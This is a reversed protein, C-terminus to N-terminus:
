SRQGCVWVGVCRVLINDPKIDAHVIRLSAIHKLAIMMQKSYARVSKINIGCPPAICLKARAVTEEQQEDDDDVDRIEIGDTDLDIVLDVVSELPARAKVMVSGSPRGASALALAASIFLLGSLVM